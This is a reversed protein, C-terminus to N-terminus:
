AYTLIHEIWRSFFVRWWSFWRWRLRTQKGLLLILEFKNSFIMSANEKMQYSATEFSASCLDYFFIVLVWEFIADLLAFFAWQFSTDILSISISVLSLSLTWNPGAWIFQETDFPDLINLCSPIALQQREDVIPLPMLEGKGLRGRECMDGRPSSLCHFIMITMAVFAKFWCAYELLDREVWEM